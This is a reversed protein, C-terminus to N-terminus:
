LISLYKEASVKNSYEEVVYDRPSFSKTTFQKLVLSFDETGAFSLGAKPDLYPASIKGIIQLSGNIFTGSEYVLTPVGRAWAEFMALGQSESKSLYIENKSKELLKFYDSQRFTGYTLIQFSFNNRILGQRVRDLLEGRGTKNYVLFDLNKKVNLRDPVTVGAPWVRIRDQLAPHTKCYFEKVWHSPVVVIDILPNKLIGREDEPTVVLNPGAIIKKIKGLKKQKIAWALTKIGSIVCAAAIPKNITKNLSFDEGLERLGTTLSDIVAKPGRTEKGLIKKLLSKVRNSLFLNETYLYLM